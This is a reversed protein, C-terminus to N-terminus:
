KEKKHGLINTLQITPGTSWATAQPPFLSSIVDYM